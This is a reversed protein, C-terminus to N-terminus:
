LEENESPSKKSWEELLAQTAPSKAMELPMKGNSAKLDYPVGAELLVRVTETHREEKGWCARHIATYGDKHADLPDLGHDILLKAVEHRGQFGAGHMPTYGDQEGITVDAGKELLLKVVETKGTLVALMLPTQGGPGVVNIDGGDKLASRIGELNDARVNEIIAYDEVTFHHTVQKPVPASRALSIVLMMAFICPFREKLRKLM